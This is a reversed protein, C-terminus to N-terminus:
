IRSAQGSVAVVSCAGAGQRAAFCAAIDGTIWTCAAVCFTCGLCRHNYERRPAGIPPRGTPKRQSWRSRGPPHFSVTPYLYFRRRHIWATRM